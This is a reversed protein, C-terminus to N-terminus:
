GYGPLPLSPSLSPHPLLPSASSLPPVSQTLSPSLTLLLSHSLSDTHTLSRSLSLFLPMIDCSFIGPKCHSLGSCLPPPLPPSFLLPSPFSTLTGTNIRRSCCLILLCNLEQPGTYKWAEPEMNLVMAAMPVRPVTSGVVLCNSYSPLILLLSTITCKFHTGEELNLFLISSYNGRHEVSM